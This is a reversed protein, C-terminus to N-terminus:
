SASGHTPHSKLYQDLGEVAAHFQGLFTKYEGNLKQVAARVELTTPPPSHTLKGLVASEGRLVDILKEYTGDLVFDSRKRRLEDLLANIGHLVGDLEHTVDKWEEPGPDSQALYADLRSQACVAWTSRASIAVLRAHMRKASMYEWGHNGFQALKALNDVFTGFMETLAKIAEAVQQFIDIGM